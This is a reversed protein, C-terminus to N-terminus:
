NACASIAVVFDVFTDPNPGLGANLILDCNSSGCLAYSLEPLSLYLSFSYEYRDSSNM